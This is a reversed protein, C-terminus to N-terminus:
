NQHAGHLARFFSFLFSLMSLLVSLCFLICIVFLFSFFLFSFFLFSSFLLSSFLLSFFLFSFFLFSFFLFSFFLFFSLPFRFQNNLHIFQYPSPFNFLGTFLFSHLLSIWSCCASLEVSLVFRLYVFVNLSFSFYFKISFIPLPCTLSYIFSIASFILFLYSVVFLFSISHLIPSFNPSRSSVAVSSFHFLYM